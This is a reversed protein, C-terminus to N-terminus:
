PKQHYLTQALEGVSQTNTTRPVGLNMRFEVPRGTQPREPVAPPSPLATPQEGLLQALISAYANPLSKVLKGKQEDGTIFGCAMGLWGQRRHKGSDSWDHLRNHYHNLNSISTYTTRQGKECRYIM